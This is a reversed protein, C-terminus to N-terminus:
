SIGDSTMAKHVAYRANEPEVMRLNNGNFINM